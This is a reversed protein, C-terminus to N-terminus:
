VCSLVAQVLIHMPVVGCNGSREKLDGGRKQDNLARKGLLDCLVSVTLVFM